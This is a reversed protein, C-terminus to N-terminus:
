KNKSALQKELKEVLEPNDELVVRLKKMGQALNTGEYAFYAGKKELIEEFVLAEVLGSIGDVGKGYIIDETVVKFPPGVKNKVIKIQQKFGIVDEGEKIVGKNKIELRQTAYFKLAKGGTTTETPGYMAITKRLQNIFIITCGVESAPGTILKMGQSMMRAQLAIKAEGSEGELEAKPVMAAVSDVIILDVERSNILARIAEFAMEGYTPQSIYLDDVNVGIESCYHVNLAHEMDIFAVVGGAKQCEKAAELALGTKGCGSEAYIEIIKGEGYGGGLASNLKPRGSPITNSNTKSESMKLVVPEGYRKELSALASKIGNGIKSM